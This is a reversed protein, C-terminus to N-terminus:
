FLHFSVVELIEEKMTVMMGGGGGGNGCGGGQNGYGPQGGYGGKSSYGPGGVMTAVELDMVDVM